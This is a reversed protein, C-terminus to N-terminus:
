LGTGLHKFFALSHVFKKQQCLVPRRISINLAELAQLHFFSRGRGIITFMQSCFNKGCEPNKVLHEAISSSLPDQSMNMNSGLTKELKPPIHQRIRTSLRQNTRGVYASECSCTFLYILHSREHAPLVDKVSSPLMVRSTLIVRPNVKDYCRKIATTIKKRFHDSLQGIYPLRLYVPTKAPQEVVIDETTKKFTEIKRDITRRVIAEPYSNNYLISKVM